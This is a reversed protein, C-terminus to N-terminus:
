RETVMIIVRMKSIAEAKKRLRQRSGARGRASVLASAGSAAAARKLSRILRVM